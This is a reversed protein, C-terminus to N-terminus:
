PKKATRKMEQKYARVEALTEAGTVDAVSRRADPEGYGGAAARWGEPRVDLQKGLLALFIKAKQEGFGPLARLRRLLETGSPADRWLAVTDADCHEVLYRCLEQVRRAMSGPYRHIAPPGAALSAFADPDHAAIESADLASVDLRQVLLLPASFAWEMSVQQDLLMGILLALPDRSLLADAEPNQTLCLRPSTNM